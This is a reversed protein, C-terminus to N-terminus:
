IFWMMNGKTQCFFRSHNARDDTAWPIRTPPKPTTSTARYTKDKRHLQSATEKRRVDNVRPLIEETVM